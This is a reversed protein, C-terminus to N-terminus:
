NVARVLQYAIFIKQEETLLNVHHKIISALDTDMIEYGIYIENFPMDEIPLQVYEIRIINEHKFKMLLKIERIIRKIQDRTTMSEIKKLAM